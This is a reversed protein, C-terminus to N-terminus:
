AKNGYEALNNLEVEVRNISFSIDNSGTKVSGVGWGGPFTGKLHSEMSPLSQHFVDM